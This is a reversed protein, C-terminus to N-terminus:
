TRDQRPQSSKRLHSPFVPILCHGRRFLAVNSSRLLDRTEVLREEGGIILLSFPFSCSGDHEYTGLSPYRGQFFSPREISDRLAGNSFFLRVRTGRSSTRGIPSFACVRRAVVRLLNVSPVLLILFVVSKSEPPFPLTPFFYPPDVQRSPSISPLPILPGSRVTLSPSEPNSRGATFTLPPSVLTLLMLRGSGGGNPVFAPVLSSPVANVEKFPYRYFSCILFFFSFFDVFSSDVPFEGSHVLHPPAENPLSFCARETSREGM